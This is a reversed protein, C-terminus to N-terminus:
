HSDVDFSSSVIKTGNITAQWEVAVVGITGGSRIVSLSLQRTEGEEPETVIQSSFGFGSFVFFLYIM